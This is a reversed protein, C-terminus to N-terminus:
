TAGIRLGKAWLLTVEQKGEPCGALVQFPLTNAEHMHAWTPIQAGASLLQMVKAPSM